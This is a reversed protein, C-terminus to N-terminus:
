YDLHTKWVLTDPGTEQGDAYGRVKAYAGTGGVIPDQAVDAGNIGDGYGSVIQLQGEPLALTFTCESHGNTDIQVCYGQYHGAPQGDRNLDGALVGFDGASDGTPAQDVVQMSTQHADLTFDKKKAPAASGNAVWFTLGAIAVVGVTLAGVVARKM